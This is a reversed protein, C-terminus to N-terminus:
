RKAARYGAAIADQESMYKGNKTKGYWRDGEKHYIKTDLNVWVQGSGAAPASQSKSASGGAAQTAASSGSSAPQAAPATGSTQSVKESRTAKDSSTASPKTSASALGPSTAPKTASVTAQDQIKDITRQPIGAKKLDAVSAFPRGAIIKKATATGVGPLAELDRQSATNLDVKGGLVSSQKQKEESKAKATTTPASAPSASVTVLGQIKDITTQAVGAKKLDAVSAFPRGAIIKKATAAGVGPLAELDKQSATNLDIKGAPPQASQSPKAESKSKKSQASLPNAALLLICTAITVAIRLKSNM